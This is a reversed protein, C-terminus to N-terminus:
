AFRGSAGRAASGDLGASQARGGGGRPDDAQGCGQRTREGADADRRGDVRERLARGPKFHVVHGAPRAVAAGTRPNRGLRPRRYRVSFSGFDRIEIRGGSALHEGMHELMTKVAAEIDSRSLAERHQALRAILQSRIM